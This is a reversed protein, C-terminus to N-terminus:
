PDSMAPPHRELGQLCPRESFPAPFVFLKVVFASPVALTVTASGLM